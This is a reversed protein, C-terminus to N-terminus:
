MACCAFGLSLRFIRFAPFTQFGQLNQVYDGIWSFVVVFIDFILWSDRVINPGFYLIQMTIEVTYVCLFATDIIELVIGEATNPDIALNIGMLIANLIIMCIIILQVKKSNIFKGCQYRFRLWRLWMVNKLSASSTTSSGAIYMSAGVVSIGSDDLGNNSKISQVVFDMTM